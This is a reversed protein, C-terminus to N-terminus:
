MILKVEQFKAPPGADASSGAKTGGADVHNARLRQRLRLLAKALAVEVEGGGQGDGHAEEDDSMESRMSSSRTLGRGRSPSSSSADGVGASHRTRAQATIAPSFRYFLRADEFDHGRTVHFLHGAQVMQRGIALAAEAM